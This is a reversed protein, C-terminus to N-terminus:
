RWHPAPLKTGYKLTLARPTGAGRVPDIKVEFIRDTSRGNQVRAYLLLTRARRLVDAYRRM